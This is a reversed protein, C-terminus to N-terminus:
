GACPLRVIFESGRGPGESRAEISGGHLEVLGKTIALGVGLGGDARDIVEPAQTFMEFLRSRMEDSMGIGNDRVRLVVFGEETSGTVHVRGGPDTYKAANTLLNGLVQTMRVPDAEIQPPEPPLDVLLAHGK